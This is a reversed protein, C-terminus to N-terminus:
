RASLGQGAADGSDSDYRCHAYIYLQHATKMLAERAQITAVVTDASSGVQGQHAVLTAILADVAGLEREWAADDAYMLTLDWTDTANAESRTPVQQATM